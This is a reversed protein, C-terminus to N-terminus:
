MVMATDISTTICRHCSARRMLHHLIYRMPSVQLMGIEQKHQIKQAQKQMKELLQAILGGDASILAYLLHLQGIEQNGYERAVSQAKQVATTANTTFKRMDM